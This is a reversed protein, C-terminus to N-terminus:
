RVRDCGTAAIQDDEVREVPLTASGDEAIEIVALLYHVRNCSPSEGDLDHLFTMRQAVHAKDRRINGRSAVFYKRQAPSRDIRRGSFAIRGRLKFALVIAHLKIRFGTRNAADEVLLFLALQYILAARIAKALIEVHGAAVLSRVGQQLITQHPQRWRQLHGAGM